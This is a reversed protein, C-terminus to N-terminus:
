PRSNGPGASVLADELAMLLSARDEQAVRRWDRGSLGGELAWLLNLSAQSCAARIRVFAQVAGLERLQAQTHIGAQSLMTQSKPGLGPFGAWAESHAPERPANASVSAHVSVGRKNKGATIRGQRQAAEMALRAWVRMQEPEDLAEQPAQHYSLAVQRGDAREITFPRLSRVVFRPSTQADVKLYLEGAAILAFMLGENFLGVGGFMRRPTVGPLGCMLDLVHDLLAQEAPPRRVTM